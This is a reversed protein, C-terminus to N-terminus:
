GLLRMRTAVYEAFAPVVSAPLESAMGKRAGLAEEGEQKIVAVQTWARFAHLAEWYRLRTADLPLHKRYERQYAPVLYLRLMRLLTREVISDLLPAALWFLALTRGVDAHRDGITGDAWDILTMRDGDTLINMPHFDLHVLVPEEDRVLDTHSKMWALPAALGPPNYRSVYDQPEELLRDVLPAEYPLPCGETPITHLRAQLATMDRVLRPIKLPNKLANIAQEGLAREMVMFPLGFSGIEPEVLLPRPVTIGREAAFAQIDGERKAKPGQNVTPYVRLVLPAAL